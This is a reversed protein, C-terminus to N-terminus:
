RNEEVRQREELIVRATQGIARRESEAKKTLWAHTEASLPVTCNILTPKKGMFKEVPKQVTASKM